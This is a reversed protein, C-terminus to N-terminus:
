FIPSLYMRNRYKMKNLKNTQKEPLRVLIGHITFSSFIPHKARDLPIQPSSKGLIEHGKEAILKLLNSVWTEALNLCCQGKGECAM